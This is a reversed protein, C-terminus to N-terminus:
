GVNFIVMGNFNTKETESKAFVMLGLPQHRQTVSVYTPSLIKIQM